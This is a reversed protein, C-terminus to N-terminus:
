SLQDFEIKSVNVINGLLFNKLGNIRRTDINNFVSEEGEPTITKLSFVGNTNSLIYREEKFFVSLFSLERNKFAIFLACLQEKKSLNEFLGKCIYYKLNFIM